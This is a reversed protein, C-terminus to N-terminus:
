PSDANERLGNRHVRDIQLAEDNRGIIQRHFLARRVGERYREGGLRSRVHRYVERLERASVLVKRGGGGRQRERRAIPVLRLHDGDARGAVGIREIARRCEIERRGATVAALLHLATSASSQAFRTIEVVEIDTM